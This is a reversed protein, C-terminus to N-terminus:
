FFNKLFRIFSFVEFYSAARETKFSNGNKDTTCKIDKQKGGGRFAYWFGWM